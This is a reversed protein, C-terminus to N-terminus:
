SVSRYIDEDTLVGQAEVDLLMERRLEQFERQAFYRKLADRVLESRTVGEAKSAKDLERTLEKPLSITLTRRM